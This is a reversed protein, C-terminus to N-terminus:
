NPFTYCANTESLIKQRELKYDYSVSIMMVRITNKSNNSESRKDIKYM